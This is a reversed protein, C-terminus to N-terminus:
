IEKEELNSRITNSLYYVGVILLVIQIYFFLDTVSGTYYTENQTTIQFLLDGIALPVMSSSIALLPLNLKNKFWLMMGISAPVLAIADLFPYSFLLIQIMISDTTESLAYLYVAILVVVLSSLIALGLIKKSINQKLSKVYLTFFVILCITDIIFAVDAFSPFPRKDFILENVAWIHQATAYMLAFVSFIIWILNDRSGKRTQSVQFFATVALFVTLAIYTLDSSIKAINPGLFDPVAWIVSIVGIPIILKLISQNLRPISKTKEM